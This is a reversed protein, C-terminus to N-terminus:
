RVQNTNGLKVCDGCCSDKCISSSTNRFSWEPTWSSCIVNVRRCLMKWLTADTKDNQPLSNSLLSQKLFEERHHMWPHETLQSSMMMQGKNFVSLVFGGHKCVVHALGRKVTILNGCNYWIPRCILLLFHWHLFSTNSTMHFLTWIINNPCKVNSFCVQRVLVYRQFLEKVVVNSPDKLICQGTVRSYISTGGKFIYYQHPALAMQILWM